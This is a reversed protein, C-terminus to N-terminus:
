KDNDKGVAKLIREITESFFRINLPKRFFREAECDKEEKLFSDYSSVLIVPIYQTAKNKKIVRLVQFGDMGPMMIDLIVANPKIENVKKLGDEGNLAVDVQFGKMELNDKVMEAFNEEDDIVLIRKIENGKNVVNLNEM